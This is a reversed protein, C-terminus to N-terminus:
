KTILISEEKYYPKDSVSWNIQITWQGHRIANLPIIQRNDEGIKVPLNFDLTKDDPKYFTIEGAIKNKDIEIPFVIELANDAKLFKISVDEKLAKANQLKTYRTGYNLENEYYKESVLDENQHMAKFAMVLIGTVFLSYLILIRVGWNIKM